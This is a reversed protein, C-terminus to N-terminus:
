SVKILTQEVFRRIPGELLKLALPVHGKATVNEADLRLTVEYGPGSLVATTDDAWTVKRIWHGHHAQAETIAKRFNARAAEPSQGHKVAVDIQAM